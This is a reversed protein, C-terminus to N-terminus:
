KILELTEGSPMRIKILGNKYNYLMYSTTDLANNVDGSIFYVSDYEYGQIIKSSYTFRKPAIVNTSQSFNENKYSIKLYGDYYHGPLYLALYIPDPSKNCIFKYTQYELNVLDDPCDGTGSRNSTTGSSFGHLVGIGVYTLTDKTSSSVLSFNEYGIYPVVAKSYDPLYDTYTKRAPCDQKSSGLLNCGTFFLCVLIVLELQFAKLVANRFSRGWERTGFLMHLINTYKM